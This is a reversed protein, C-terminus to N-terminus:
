SAANDELSRGSELLRQNRHLLERLSAFVFNHNLQDSFGRFSRPNPNAKLFLIQICERARSDM